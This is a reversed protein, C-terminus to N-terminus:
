DMYLLVQLLVCSWVHMVARYVVDAGLRGGEVRM